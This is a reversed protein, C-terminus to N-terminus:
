ECLGRENEYSSKQKEFIMKYKGNQNMLEDHTGSELIEGQELFVVYDALLACSMRHSILVVIKNKKGIYLEKINEYIEYEAIPDLASSPEDLIIVPTNKFMARTIALKQYEGGSFEVGSDNFEKTVISNIGDTLTSIKHYLQSKNLAEAIDCDIDEENRELNNGMTINDKITMAFLQPQQFVTSILKQYEKLNFDKINIGDLLIEGETVDYLRMILKILTTKGAGNHGFLAITSNIPLKLNINKLAPKTQGDYTFCVNKFMIYQPTVPPRLGEQNQNIKPVYEMMNKFNQVYLGHETLENSRDVFAQLRVRADVVATAILIYDSMQLSGVVMIKYAAYLWGAYFSIPMGMINTITNRVFLKHKYQDIVTGIGQYGEDYRKKFLILLNSTRIDKAYKKLLVMRKVYDMKREFPIKEQQYQYKLQVGILQSIYTFVVPIIIFITFIFDLKVIVGMFFIATAFAGILNCVCDLISIARSETEKLAAIYTDYFDKNEYCSIDVSLTKKLLMDLFKYNLEELKVPRYYQMFWSSFISSVLFYLAFVFVLGVIDKFPAEEEFMRFLRVTFFLTFVAWTLNDVLLSKFLNGIVLGPNFRFILKMFYLINKISLIRKNDKKNKM